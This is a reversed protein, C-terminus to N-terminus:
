QVEIEYPLRAQVSGMMSRIRKLEMYIRFNEEGLEKRIAMATNPKSYGAFIKDWFNMVEPYESLRYDTLKAMRAACDIADQISGIKDILGIELARTGTWVRGQAITEIYDASRRRGDAVRNKFDRYITDVENQMFRKETETLPRTTTPADAYTATKVGDFTIGMKEKFFGSMNPIISFVGISGTLTGPQAFISDAGCAIYYGGSAAYDGMSVVVPKGDRKAMELERWIIESALSSGGPSSVRFVIAKVRKDMRAKRILYRYTDSGMQGDEGKGYVIEGQGYILAIRDNGKGRRFSTAAAYTPISVFSIKADKALGLKDKIEQKVEDDYKAGDVLNYKVADNATQVLGENAYRHLTATDVGRVEATSTLLRKYLDGLWVATQLKNAETMKEERLPETASKFKGDYFIQPEVALKQLMGKLFALNVAYGSWQVGGKPNCYIKDAVNAVYYARQMIIDGYAIVFKKSQKFDALAHRLEESAAFSSTNNMCKVYIGRISSDSKATRIIRIVDYLGPIYDDQKGSFVASPDEVKQERFPQSLDLILVSKPETKVPDPTALNAIWTFLILVVIVTFVGVALFSAFFIKFFNKM